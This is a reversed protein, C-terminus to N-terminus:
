FMIATMTYGFWLALNVHNQITVTSDKAIVLASGTQPHIDRRNRRFDRGKLFPCEGEKVVEGYIGVKGDIWSTSIIKLSNRVKRRRAM